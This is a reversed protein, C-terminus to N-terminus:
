RNQRRKNTTNERVDFRTAWVVFLGVIFVVVGPPADSLNSEAVGFAKAVWSTSGAVGNLFLVVGAVICALGLVLGAMSYWFHYQTTQTWYTHEKETPFSQPTRIQNMSVTQDRGVSIARRAKPLQKDPKKDSM